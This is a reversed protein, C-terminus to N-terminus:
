AIQKDIGQFVTWLICFYCNCRLQKGFFVAHTDGDYILSVSQFLYICLLEEGAEILTCSLLAACTDSIRIELNRTPVVRLVM